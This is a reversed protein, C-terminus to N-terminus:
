NVYKRRYASILSGAATFVATRRVRRGWRSPPSGSRSASRGASTRRVYGKEGSATGKLQMPPSGAM